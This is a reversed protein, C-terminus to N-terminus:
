EKKKTSQKTEEDNSKIVRILDIVDTKLTDKLEKGTEVMKGVNEKTAYSAAAMQLFTTQSPLFLTLLLSITAVISAPKLIKRASEKTEKEYPSNALSYIVGAVLSIITAFVAFIMALEETKGILGYFYFWMPHVIYM